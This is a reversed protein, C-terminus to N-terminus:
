AEAEAKKQELIETKRIEIHGVPYIKACDQRITKQLDGKIIMSIFDEFASEKATRDVIERALARADTKISTNVRRALSFITKVRLKVKDKTEVDQIVDVRRTHRQVMRYVREYMTDHGTFKTYAKTGSVETIQFRLKIFFRSFDRIIEMLSVDITRGVLQKPDAALTEGVVKEGFMKPSIIEYWQKKVAVMM